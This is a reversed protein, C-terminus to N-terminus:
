EFKMGLEQLRMNIKEVNTEIGCSARFQIIDNLPVSHRSTQPLMSNFIKEVKEIAARIGVALLQPKNSNSLWFYPIAKRLHFGLNDVWFWFRLWILKNLREPDEPTLSAPISHISCILSLTNYTQKGPSAIPNPASFYPSFTNSSSLDYAGIFFSWFGHSWLIIAWPAAFALKAYLSAVSPDAKEKLASRLISGGM